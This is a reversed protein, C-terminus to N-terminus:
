KKRGVQNSQLVTTSSPINVTVGTGNVVIPGSLYSKGKTFQVNGGSACAVAARNLAVTDLTVGDGQLPLPREISQFLPRLACDCLVNQKILRWWQVWRQGM